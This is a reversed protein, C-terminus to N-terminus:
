IDMYAGFLGRIGIKSMSFCRGSIDMSATTEITIRIPSSGVAKQNDGLLCALFIKLVTSIDITRNNYFLKYLDFRGSKEPNLGRIIGQHQNAM